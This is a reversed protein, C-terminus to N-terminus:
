LIHESIKTALPETPLPAADVVVDTDAGSVNGTRSGLSGRAEIQQREAIKWALNEAILVQAATDALFQTSQTTQDPSTASTAAADLLLTTTTSYLPAQQRSYYVTSATAVAMLLAILWLRKRITAVYEAGLGGTQNAIGSITM